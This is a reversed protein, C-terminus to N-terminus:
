QVSVVNGCRIGNRDRNRDHTIQLSFEIKEGSKKKNGDIVDQWYFIGNEFIPYEPIQFKNNFQVFLYRKMLLTLLFM